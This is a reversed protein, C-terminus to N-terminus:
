CWLPFLAFEGGRLLETVAMSLGSLVPMWLNDDPPPAWREVLTAVLAGVLVTWLSLGGLAVGVLGATACALLCALSGAVTKGQCARGWSVGVWEAAPDGWCLFLVATGGINQGLLVFSALAGIAFWTSGLARRGEWGRFVTPLLRWLLRNPWAWWRRTAEVILSAIVLVGALAAALEYSVSWGVAPLIMMALHILKRALSARPSWSAAERRSKAM